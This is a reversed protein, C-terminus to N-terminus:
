EALHRSTAAIPQKEPLKASVKYTVATGGGAVSVSIDDGGSIAAFAAATYIVGRVKRFTAPDTAEVMRPRRRKSQRGWTPAGATLAAHGDVGTFAGGDEGRVNWTTGNDDVYTFYSFNKENVAM